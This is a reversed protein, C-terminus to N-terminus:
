SLLYKLAFVILSWLAANVGTIIAVATWIPLRDERAARREAAGRALYLEAFRRNRTM